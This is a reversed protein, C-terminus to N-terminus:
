KTNGPEDFYWDLAYWVAFAVCNHLDYQVGRIGYVNMLVM